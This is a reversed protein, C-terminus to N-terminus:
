SDSESPQTPTALKAKPSTVAGSTSFLELGLAEGLKRVDGVHKIPVYSFWQWLRVDIADLVDEDTLMDPNDITDGDVTPLSLATIKSRILAWYADPDTQENAFKRMEGRTWVDSLEVYAGSFEDHKCAYRAM